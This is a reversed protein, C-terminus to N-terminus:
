FTGSEIAGLERLAAKQATTLGSAGTIDIQEYPRENVLTMEPQYTHLNWLRITGDDSGSVLQEQSLFAVARIRSMHDQFTHIRQRTKVHWLCITHDEGGSALLDGDPSFAVTRVWHTHEQLVALCDGTAVDWLRVTMDESGSALFLGDPSFCVSRIRSAHGYLTSQVVGTHSDWLFIVQDDGATALQRSDPSFAVTRVWATHGQLLHVSTRTRTSWIYVNRDEGGSALLQGDPSFAIAWVWNAHGRAIALCQGTGVDWFHVTQDEGGSAITQGDPSFAVVRARHTHDNLTSLCKGTTSQWVRLRQDESASVLLSAHPSLALSWIRNTYGRLTKLSYGNRTDWVHISQDDGGSALMEGDASFAVSRVGHTHGELVSLCRGREIDWLRVTADESGSALLERQPHFAVSWVRNTHGQLTHLCMGTEVNWLRITQDNSGSALLRGDSSFALTRIGDGHGRLAKLQQGTLSDWLSLMGDTSGSAFLRGTPHFAVAWIREKHGTVVQLCAFSHLNWLRVTQDDSGSALVTGDPSCAIARVRNTHGRLNTLSEGTKTNWLRITQDDSSSVLLDHHPVFVLSWVSDTHGECTFLPTGEPLQYLWITGQATGIALIAAKPHFAISRINGFTNLFVTNIFHAQVFKAAILPFHHLYAERIPLFSCDLGSLNCHAYILVHLINAALYNRPPTRRQRQAALMRQAQQELEEVSLTNLLRAILPMLLLRKQTDRIYEKAQAQMFAYSAWRSLHLASIDYTALTVLKNTVYEMIVPQLTYLAPERVEILARQRLSDLSALLIGSSLLQVSNDQLTELSVAEREIALWYLVDQEQLSLRLFQQELLESIEGFASEQNQLFLAIHGRFTGRISQSVLKLALPNGAYLDILSTWQDTTGSLTKEELLAKGAQYDLGSLSLSRVPATIGEMRVIEAPQERSTLLLCSQHPTVGIRKLLIGYDEYGPRYHGIQQGPQLLSEINDLILLCRHLRLHQLLLTLQDDLSEPLPLTSQRMFFQLCQQLVHKLSPANHLSRWFIFAFSGKLTSAISAVLATKGIGGMGTLTIIRCGDDIIWQRLLKTEGERGYLQEVSPTDGWDEYHVVLSDANEWQKEARQIEPSSSAASHALLGFAEASKGFIECLAQRHYPRPLRKGSEWRGVTKPDTGLRSALDAQSWSRQEREWKLQQAFSVRQEM